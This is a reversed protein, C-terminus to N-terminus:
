MKVPSENRAKIQWFKGLLELDCRYQNLYSMQLFIKESFTAECIKHSSQLINKYHKNMLYKLNSM